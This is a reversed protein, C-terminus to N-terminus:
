DIFRFAELINIDTFLLRFHIIRHIFSYYVIIYLSHINIIIWYYYVFLLYQYCYIIISSLLDIIFARIRLFANSWNCDDLVRIADYNIRLLLEM